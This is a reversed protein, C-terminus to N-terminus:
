GSASLRCCEASETLLPATQTFPTFPVGQQHPRRDPCTRHCVNHCSRQLCGDARQPRVQCRRIFDVMGCADAIAQLMDPLVHVSRGPGRSIPRAICKVQVAQTVSGLCMNMHTPTLASGRVQKDLGLMECAALACYCGRVDM